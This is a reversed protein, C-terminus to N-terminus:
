EDIFFAVSMLTIESIIIIPLSSKYPFNSIGIQFHFTDFIPECLRMKGLLFRRCIWSIKLIPQSFARLFIIDNWDRVPYTFDCDPSNKRM